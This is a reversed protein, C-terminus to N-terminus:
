GAFVSMLDDKFQQSLEDPLPHTTNVLKKWINEEYSASTLISKYARHMNPRDKGRESGDNFGLKVYLNKVKILLDGHAFADYPIREEISIPGAQFTIKDSGFDKGVQLGGTIAVGPILYSLLEKTFNEHNIARQKLEEFSKTIESLAKGIVKGLDFVAFENYFLRHSHARFLAPQIDKPNTRTVYAEIRIHKPDTAMRFDSPRGYGLDELKITIFDNGFKGVMTRRAVGTANGYDDLTSASTTTYGKTKLFREANEVNDVVKPKKQNIPPNEFKNWKVKEVTRNLDIVRAWSYPVVSTEDYAVIVRGDNEGTFVLGKTQKGAKKYFPYALKSTFSDLARVMPNGDPQDKQKWEELWTIANKLGFRKFQPMLLKLVDFSQGDETISNIGYVRQAVEPDFILMGNLKVKARVIFPGYLKKMREDQQDDFDYTLYIGKGYMAGGGAKFGTEGITKTVKVNHTRHYGIALNGLVRETLIETEQIIEFYRM